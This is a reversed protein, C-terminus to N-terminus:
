RGVHAPWVSPPASYYNYEEYQLYVVAGLLLLVAVALGSLLWILRGGSAPPPQDNKAAM